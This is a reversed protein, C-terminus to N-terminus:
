RNVKAASLRGTRIYSQLHDELAAVAKLMSHISEREDVGMSDRFEKLLHADMEAFFGTIMADELLIQAHAMDRDPNVIPKAM